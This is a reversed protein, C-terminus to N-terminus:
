IQPILDSHTEICASKLIINLINELNYDRITRLKSQKREAVNNIIIYIIKYM